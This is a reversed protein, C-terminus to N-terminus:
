CDIKCLNYNSYLLFKIDDEMYMVYRKKGSIYDIHMHIVNEVIEYTEKKKDIFVIRM